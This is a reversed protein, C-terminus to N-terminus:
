SFCYIVEGTAYWAVRVDLVERRLRELSRPRLRAQRRPSLRRCEHRICRVNSKEAEIRRKLALGRLFAESVNGECVYSRLGRQGKLDIRIVQGM